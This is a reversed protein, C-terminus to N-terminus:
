GHLEVAVTDAWNQIQSHLTRSLTDNGVIWGETARGFVALGKRRGLVHGSESVRIAQTLSDVEVDGRLILQSLPGTEDAQSPSAIVANVVVAGDPAVSQDSLKVLGERMLRLLKAVSEAPPGFAIREMEKAVQQFAKYQKDALGGFSVSKVIQPYLRRWADGLAFPIDITRSGTAVGYSQLMARRAAAEDMKYRSWGRFWEEVDRPTVSIGSHVMSGAAAECLIRWIDHHFKLKGHQSECERLRARYPDWFVETIPEVKATPKALMPRGSRCHVAIQHPEMGSRVYNPLTDNPEFRGDRGETLMMIADIATLGFGRLWVDCDAPVREISLQTEVPFVFTERDSSPVTGSGRLGEHGTTLVVRDFSSEDEGDWLLWGSGSTSDTVSRISKVRRRVVTLKTWRRLRRCVSEFCEHLYEGVVARPVFQDSAAYEPYNRDLWGILSGSRPTPQNSDVKWFDIHQSAFNMRLMRPQKPNYICGAGPFTSPEFVTIEIRALEDSSLKRFLADLCQLGRPGCGVIALRVPANSQNASAVSDDAVSGGSIAVNM